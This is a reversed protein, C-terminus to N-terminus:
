DCAKGEAKRKEWAAREARTVCGMAVLKEDSYHMQVKVCLATRLQHRRMADKRKGGVSRPCTLLGVNVLPRSSFRPLHLLPLPSLTCERVLHRIASFPSHVDCSQAFVRVKQVRSLDTGATRAASACKCPPRARRRAPVASRM